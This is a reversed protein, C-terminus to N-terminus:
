PLCPMPSALLPASRFSGDDVDKQLKKWLDKFENRGRKSTGTSSRRRFLNRAAEEQESPAGACAYVSLGPRISRTHAHTGTAHPQSASTAGVAPRDSAAGPQQAASM